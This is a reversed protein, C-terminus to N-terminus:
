PINIECVGGSCCLDACCGLSACSQGIQACGAGGGADHGSGGGDHGTGGPDSHSTGSDAHGADPPPPPTLPTCTGSLAGAAIVCTIGACCDATSTCPGSSPICSTSACELMGGANPVCPSGNCCDAATACSSGPERCEGTGSDALGYALCRPIGLRDLQCALFKPTQPGCYDARISSSACAYGGDGTGATYHCTDGEPVCVGGNGGNGPISCYGLTSGAAIDCTVKGAGLIGSDLPEGGCCDSDQRFLDEHFASASPFACARRTWKSLRTAVPNRAEPLRRATDHGRRQLRAKRRVRHSRTPLFSWRPPATPRPLQSPPPHRRYLRRREPLCRRSWRPASWSPNLHPWPQRLLRAGRPSLGSRAASWRM